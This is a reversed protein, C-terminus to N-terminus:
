AKALQPHRAAPLQPTARREGVQQRWMAYYLGTRELLDEHQGAEVIKGRELVYIRDAHMVTSLRHAILITIVARSTAVDRMTRSIEEETLSDLSSTAEDFVLLHPNRLLARAISLRQKEGGSVKVGGEGIVTDLGKDARALLTNAAAKHLVDLCQADSAHPNVFLLNERITGSFLQADQTVLGIRERLRDLDVTDSAIGNYLIRGSRPPYLGVLLKVLTTKGAGSPGVFAITEGRNVTFSIDTLAPSSATQHMFGVNEFELDEIAALPVPNLPKPDKPTELIKRFNGLSVETERYVNIINGLEQMPGFIFFSYFLLSFFQGVTIKQTFILYLMMFLICTRLLNVSTGQIFSLSRIYKVKKLELKLIKDTTANLRVVEQDALGLSKVLEINRLSETTSGALATTEAVIVKQISKVRGSLTWSLTGLLPVTALFAPVILWHVHLAYIVVFVVGVLTTFILNISLSIFKEVDSRVKQLKGLTEGSRQDEFVSYPLELSHRIGDSYMEAGVRQVIVNVFYDQFNKAVRSVFAVGMAMLLLKGAGKIFQATQYERFRTAYDDIVHRFILPDLLSFVQNTAALVLALLILRQYKRLYSNLLSM